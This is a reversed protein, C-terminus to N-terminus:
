EYIDDKDFGLKKFDEKTYMVSLSDTDYDKWCGTRKAQKPRVKYIKCLKKEKDFFICFGSDYSRMWDPFTGAIDEQSEKIPIICKNGSIEEFLFYKNIMEKSEMKLYKAIKFLENPTPVCPRQYCCFGCRVCEKKNLDVARKTKSLFLKRDEMAREKYGFSEM